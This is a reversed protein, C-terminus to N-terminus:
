PFELTHLRYNRTWGTPYGSFYVLITPGRTFLYFLSWVANFEGCNSDLWEGPGRDVWLGCVMLKGNSVTKNTPLTYIITATSTSTPITGSTIVYKPSGLLDVYNKTAVDQTGTPDAVGTIRNSGMALIGSMADGAKALKLAALTDVYNKTAADQATTPDAVGTIKNSGMALIGTMADGSKTVKTVSVSDVYSSRVCSDGDITISTSEGYISM